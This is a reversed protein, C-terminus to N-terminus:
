AQSDVRSLYKSVEDHYHHYLHSSELNKLHGELVKKQTDVSMSSFWDDQFDRRILGALVSHATLFGHALGLAERNKSAEHLSKRISRRCARMARDSPPPVM